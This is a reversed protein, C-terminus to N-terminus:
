QKRRKRQRFNNKARERSGRSVEQPIATSKRRVERMPERVVNRLEHSSLIDIMSSEYGKETLGQLYCIYDDDDPSPEKDDVLQEGIRTACYHPLYGLYSRNISKVQEIFEKNVNFLRIYESEYDITEYVFFGDAGLPEDSEPPTASRNVRLLSYESCLNKDDAYDECSNLAELLSGSSLISKTIRGYKSLLVTSYASSKESVHECLFCQGYQPVTNIDIFLKVSGPRSRVVNLRYKLRRFIDWNQWIITNITVRPVVFYNSLVACKAEEQTLGTLPPLPESSNAGTGRVGAIITPQNPYFNIPVISNKGPGM